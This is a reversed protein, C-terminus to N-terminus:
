FGHEQEFKQREGKKLGGLYEFSVGAQRVKTRLSLLVYFSAIATICILAGFWFALAPLASRLVSNGLSLEACFKLLGAFPSVISAAFFAGRVQVL